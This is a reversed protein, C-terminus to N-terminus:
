SFTALEMRYSRRCVPCTTNELFWTTICAEGFGHRCGLMVMGDDLHADPEHCIVCESVEVSLSKSYLNLIALRKEELNKAKWRREYRMQNLVEQSRESAQTLTQILSESRWQQETLELLRETAARVRQAQAIRWTESAVRHQREMDTQEDAPHGESVRREDAQLVLM